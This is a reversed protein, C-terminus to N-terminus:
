IANNVLLLRALENDCRDRNDRGPHYKWRIIFLIATLLSSFFDDRSSLLLFIAFWLCSSDFFKSSRKFPARTWKDQPEIPDISQPKFRGMELWKVSRWKPMRENSQYIGMALRNLWILSFRILHCHSSAILQSHKIQDIILRVRKRVGFHLFSFLFWRHCAFSAFMNIPM